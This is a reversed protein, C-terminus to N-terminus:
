KLKTKIYKRIKEKDTNKLAHLINFLSGPSKVTYLEVSKRFNDSISYEVEIDINNFFNKIIISNLKKKGAM